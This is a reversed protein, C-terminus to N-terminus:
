GNTHSGQRALSPLVSPRAGVGSGLLKSHAICHRASPAKSELSRCRALRESRVSRAGALSHPRTMGQGSGHDQDVTEDEDLGAAESDAIVTLVRKYDTPMVKRFKSADVAWSNLIAAAVTSGTLERHRLVTDHLFARDDDSLPELDVM